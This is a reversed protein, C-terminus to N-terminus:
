HGCASREGPVSVLRFGVKDQGGPLSLRQLRVTRDLPFVPGPGPDEALPSDGSRSFNFKYLARINEQAFKDLAQLHNRVLSPRHPCLSSPPGSDSGRGWCGAETVPCQRDPSLLGEGEKPCRSPPEM